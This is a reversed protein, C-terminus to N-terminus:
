NALLYIINKIIEALEDADLAEGDHLVRLSGWETNPVRTLSDLKVFTPKMFPPNYKIIRKNTRFALKREKGKISSVNLVEIYEETASVVLYPREYEPISGDAFAIRGLIGQGKRFSM